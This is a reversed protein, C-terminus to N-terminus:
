FDPKNTQRKKRQEHKKKGLNWIHTFNCPMQRKRVSKIESLMICELDTWTSQQYLHCSKIKIASNEVIYVCVCACVYVCVCM